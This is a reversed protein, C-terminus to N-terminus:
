SKIVPAIINNKCAMGIKRILLPVAAMCGSIRAKQSCGPNSNESSNGSSSSTPSLTFVAFACNVALKQRITKMKHAQSNQTMSNPQLQSLRFRSPRLENWRNTHGPLQKLQLGTRSERCCITCGWFITRKVSNIEETHELCGWQELCLRM